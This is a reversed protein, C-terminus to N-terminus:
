DHITNAMILKGAYIAQKVSDTIEYNNFLFNKRSFNMIDYKEDIMRKITFLRIQQTTNSLTEKKLLAFVSDVRKESLNFPQLFAQDKTLVYGRLGTEADKLYSILGETNNIITNTSIIQTYKNVLKQKAIWTIFYSLFLLIFATGYGIKIRFDIKLPKIFNIM